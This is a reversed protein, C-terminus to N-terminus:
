PLEGCFELHASLTALGVQAEQSGHSQALRAQRPRQSSLESKSLHSTKNATQAASIPFLLM